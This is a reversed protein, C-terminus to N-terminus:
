GPNPGDKDSESSAGEASMNPITKASSKPILDTFKSWVMGIVSVFNAQSLHGSFMALLCVVVIALGVMVCTLISALHESYHTFFLWSAVAAATVVLVGIVMALTPSLRENEKQLYRGKEMALTIAADRIAPHQSNKEAVQFYDLIEQHTRESLSLGQQTPQTKGDQNGSTM